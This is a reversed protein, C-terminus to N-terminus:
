SCDIKMKFCQKFDILNLGIKKSAWARKEIACLRDIGLMTVVYAGCFDMQNAVPAMLRGCVEELRSYPGDGWGFGALRLWVLLLWSTPSLGAMGSHRNWKPGPVTPLARVAWLDDNLDERSSWRTAWGLWVAVRFANKEKSKPPTRGTEILM